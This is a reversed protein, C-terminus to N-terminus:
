YILVMRNRSPKDIATIRAVSTEGAVGCARAAPPKAEAGRSIAVVAIAPPIRIVQDVGDSTSLPIVPNRISLEEDPLEPVQLRAVV